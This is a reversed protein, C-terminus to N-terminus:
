AVEGNFRVGGSPMSPAVTVVDGTGHYVAGPPIGVDLIDSGEALTVAAPAANTLVHKEHTVVWMAHTRQEPPSKRVTYAPAPDSWRQYDLQTTPKPNQDAPEATPSWSVWAGYQPPTAMIVTVVAPRKPADGTALDSPRRLVWMEFWPQPCTWLLEIRSRPNSVFALTLAWEIGRRAIDGVKGRYSQWYGTEDGPQTPEAWRDTSGERVLGFWHTALHEILKDRSGPLGKNVPHTTVTPGPLGGLLVKLWAARDESM